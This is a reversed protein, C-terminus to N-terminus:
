LARKKLVQLAARGGANPLKSKDRLQVIITAPLTKLEVFMRVAQARHQRNAVSLESLLRRAAQKSDGDIRWVAEISSLRVRDSKATLRTKLFPLSREALSSMKGLSRASRWQLEEFRSNLFRELVPLSREGLKTLASAAADRVEPAEDVIVREALSDVTTDAQPGLRGIADCTKRRVDANDDELSRVLAPLASLSAPGSAALSDVITGRLAANAVRQKKPRRTEALLAKALARIARSSGIQGFVDALLIRDDLDRTADHLQAEFHVVSEHADSRFLGISKLAWHRQKELGSFEVLLPIAARAPRGIRGLMSGTQQRLLTSTAPDKLLEILEPVLEAAAQSKPALSKLVARWQGDTRAAHQQVSAYEPSECSAGSPLSVVSLVALLIYFQQASM